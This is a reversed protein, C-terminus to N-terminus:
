STDDPSGKPKLARLKHTSQLSAVAKCRKYLSSLLSSVDFFFSLFSFFFSLLYFLFFTSLFFTSPFFTSIFSSPLLLSLFLSLSFSLSCLSCLSFFSSLSLSLSLPISLLSLFLFCSLSLFCSSSFLCFSLSSLFFCRSGARAPQESRCVSRLVHHQRQQRSLQGQWPEVEADDCLSPPLRIDRGLVWHYPSFGSRRAM